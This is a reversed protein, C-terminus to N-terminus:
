KQALNLHLPLKVTGIFFLYPEVELLVWDEENILTTTFNYCLLCKPHWTNSNCTRDSLIEKGVEGM